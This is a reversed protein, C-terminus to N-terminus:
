DKVLGILVARISLLVACSQVLIVWVCFEKVGKKRLEAGLFLFCFVDVLFVKPHVWTSLFVLLM